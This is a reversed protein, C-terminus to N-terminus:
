VGYPKDRHRGFTDRTGEEKRSKSALQVTQKYGALLEEVVEVLTSLLRESEPTEPLREYLFTFLEVVERPDLREGKLSMERLEGMRQAAELEEATRGLAPALKSAMEPTLNREGRELRSLLGQPMGAKAAVEVQSRKERLSRIPSEPVDDLLARLRQLAVGEEGREGDYGGFM